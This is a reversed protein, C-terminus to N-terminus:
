SCGPEGSHGENLVDPLMRGGTHRVTEMDKRSEGREADGAEVSSFSFDIGLSSRFVECLSFRWALKV